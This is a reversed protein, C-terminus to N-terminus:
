KYHWTWVQKNITIPTSIGEPDAKQWLLARVGLPKDLQAWCPESGTCGSLVPCPPCTRDNHPRTLNTSATHHSSTPHNQYLPAISHHCWLSQTHTHFLSFSPPCVHRLPAPPQGCCERQAWLANTWRKERSNGGPGGTHEAASPRSFTLKVASLVGGGWCVSVCGCLKKGQEHLNSNRHWLQVWLMPPKM